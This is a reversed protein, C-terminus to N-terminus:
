RVEMISHSTLEGGVLAQLYLDYPAPPLLPLIGEVVLVGEPPIAGLFGPFILPPALYWNGYPTSLPPDLVGSGFWLAVPTTGPVGVFHAQVHGAPVFDGTLYLHTQFEFAGMDVIGGAIRPNGDFDVTPLYLAANDGSNRCPSRYTLHFDGNDENFYLPDDEIITNEDYILTCGPEAHVTTKGLWVVSHSITLSSPEDQSGLWISYDANLWLISNSVVADSSDTCFIGGGREYGNNWWLTCNVIVPQANSRCSIAGGAAEYIWEVNNKFFICNQILPNSGECDLGGGHYALNEKFTNNMIVPM